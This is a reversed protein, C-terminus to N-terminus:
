RAHAVAELEIQKEGEPTTANLVAPEPVTKNTFRVALRGAEEMTEADIRGVVLVYPGLFNNPLLLACDRRRRNGFLVELRRNEKEDRGVVFKVTPDKRLHRGVMLLEGDWLGARQDHEILDYIRPAFSAETLVCGPSADPINKLGLEEALAIQRRRSRGAFDYLRERDVIGELEPITPPLRKACLPRLLRGDLAARRAVLGLDRYKQSMPRQGVVEGTAVVCAGYQELLRKAMGLYYSRCDLCPNAGKGYGHKPNRLVEMYEDGVYKAVLPIGLQAAAKMAGRASGNFPMRFHFGIVELGQLQLIRASLMSDLGGSILCIARPMAGGEQKVM